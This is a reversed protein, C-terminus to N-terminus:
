FWKQLSRELVPVVVKAVDEPTADWPRANVWGGNGRWLVKARETDPYFTRRILTVTGDEALTQHIEDKSQKYKQGERYVEPYQEIVQLKTVEAVTRANGGCEIDVCNLTESWGPENGGYLIGAYNSSPVFRTQRYVGALVHSELDWPHTHIASVGPTLLSSDWIHVRNERSLYLRLMGLGSISWNHDRPHRMICEIAERTTSM